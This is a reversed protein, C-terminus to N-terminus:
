PLGVRTPFSRGIVRVQLPLAAEEVVTKPWVCDLLEDKTVLRGARYVLAVLSDFARSRLSITAGDKM